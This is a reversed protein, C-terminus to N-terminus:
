DLNKWIKGVKISVNPSVKNFVIHDVDISIVNAEVFRDLAREDNLVSIKLLNDVPYRVNKFSFASGMVKIM